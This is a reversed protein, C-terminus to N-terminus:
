FDAPNKPISDQNRQTTELTRVLRLLAKRIEESAATEASERLLVGVGESPPVFSSQKPPVSSAPLLNRVQIETFRRGTAQELRPLLQPGYFRLQSTWAPSGAYVILREGKVVCDLCHAALFDPLAQRVAGLVQRHLDLQATVSSIASGRLLSAVPEPKDSM